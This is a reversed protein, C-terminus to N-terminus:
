KSAGSYVLYFVNAANFIAHLAISSILSRQRAYVYGLFLAFVFLSSVIVFNSLGQASSYHFCAFFFATMVISGSPSIYRKLFNQLIGRFLIEEVIPALVIVTICALFFLFPFQRSQEIYIVPIQDQLEYNPYFLRTLMDAIAAWFNMIILAIPWTFIGVGIDRIYNFPGSKWIYKAADSRLFILYAVLFLLIFLLNSLNLWSTIVLIDKQTLHPSTSFFNKLLFYIGYPALLYVLFGVVLDSFLVPSPLKEHVIAFMGSLYASYVLVAIFVASFAVVLSTGIIPFSEVM